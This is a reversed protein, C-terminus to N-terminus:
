RYFIDDRGPGISICNIRVNTAKEIYDVYQGFPGNMDFNEWGEFRIYEENHYLWVKDFGMLIDAKTMILDTIGNLEVADVLEDLNLWGCRRPRGTTAGYENGKDQIKKGTEANLETVMGGNGVRTLYSKFIGYVNGITRPPMALGSLSGSSLTTSSTVYPYSGHDIDLMTGQAGEALIRKSDKQKRLWNSNVVNLSRMYEIADMFENTENHIGDSLLDKIRVGKRYIKDRYCTGIGKKTTGIKVDKGDEILHSTTIVHANESIFIRKKADPIVKEIEEIEKKLAVPNIVMGNGLFNTTHSQIIGSPIQHLVIKEGNYYITHGANNSGQYRAVIDYNKSFMDTIKGKGEDGYQLGVLVDM